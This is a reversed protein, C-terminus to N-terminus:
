KVSLVMSKESVIIEYGFTPHNVILGRVKITKGKLGFIYPRGGVKKIATRFFVLKFGKTWSKSEFMVAFDNGRRSELVKAVKAEFTVVSGVHKRYDLLTVNNPKYDKGTKDKQDALVAIINSSQCAVCKSNNAEKLIQYSETHYFVHCNQCQYLGLSKKLPEGTFADHLGELSSPVPLNSQTTDKFKIGTISKKRPSPRFTTKDKPRKPTTDFTRRASPDFNRNTSPYQNGSSQDSNRKAIWVIFGIFGFLIIVEM